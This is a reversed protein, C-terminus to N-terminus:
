DKWSWDAVPPAYSAIKNLIDKGLEEKKKAPKGAKKLHVYDAQKLYSGGRPSTSLETDVFAKNFAIIINGDMFKKLNDGMSVLQAMTQSVGQHTNILIDVDVARGRRPDLNQKKAVEIDNLVWVIHINKKDYGLQAVGDTISELKKLDKLTVDFIINPKENKSTTLISTYLATLKKNQLKLQYGIIDHLISVDKPKNLKFKSIDHGTEDKIKKILKPARVALGKLHDVDLSFGEIGLLNDKIFGKGSATGGALIVVHGSKPYAKGGFTILKENVQQFIEAISKTM